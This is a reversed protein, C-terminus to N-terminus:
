GSSSSSTWAWVPMSFAKSCMLPLTALGYSRSMVRVARNTCLDVLMPRSGTMLGPSLARVRERRVDTSQPYKLVGPMLAAEASITWFCPSISMAPSQPPPWTAEASPIRKM